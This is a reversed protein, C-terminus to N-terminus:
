PVFREVPATATSRISGDWWPNLSVVRVTVTVRARAASRSSSISVGTVAPSGTGAVYEAATARGSTSSGQWRAAAVAGERAAAEAVRQAHMRIGAQVLATFLALLVVAMVLFEVGSVGREGRRRQGPKGRM